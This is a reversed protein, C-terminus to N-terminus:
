LSVEEGSWEELNELVLPGPRLVEPALTEVWFVENADLPM